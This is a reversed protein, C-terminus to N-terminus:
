MVLAHSSRFYPMASWKELRWLFKAFSVSLGFLEDAISLIYIYFLM